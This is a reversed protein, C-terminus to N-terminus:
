VGERAIEAAVRLFCRTVREFQEGALHSRGSARDHEESVRDGVRVVLHWQDWGRHCRRDVRDSRAVDRLSTAFM